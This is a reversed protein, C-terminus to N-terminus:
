TPEHGVEPRKEGCVPCVLMDNSPAHGCRSRWWIQGPQGDQHEPVSVWFGRVKGSAEAIGKSVKFGSVEMGWINEGLIGQRFFQMSM